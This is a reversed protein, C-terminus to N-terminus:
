RCVCEWKKEYQTASSYEWANSMCYTECLFKDNEFTRAGEAVQYIVRENQNISVICVLFLYFLLFIGIFSLVIGLEISKKKMKEGM